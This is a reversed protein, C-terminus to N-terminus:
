LQGISVPRFPTADVGTWKGPHLAIRRVGLEYLLQFPQVFAQRMSVDLCVIGYESGAYRLETRGGVRQHMETLRRLMKWMVTGDFKPYRFFIEFNRTGSLIIFTTMIPLIGPVWKNADSLKSKGRWPDNGIIRGDANRELDIIPEHGGKYCLGCSISSCVDVQIFKSFRSCFHPDIHDTELYPTQWRLGIGYERAAGVFCLRLKAGPALWQACTEPDRVKVALQQVWTDEVINVQVWVILHNKASEPNDFLKRLDAYETVIRISTSDSMMDVVGASKFVQHTGFGADGQNGHNAYAFWSAIGIYAMTPHSALTMPPTRKRLDAQVKAITTGALWANPKATYVGKFQHLFLRPAPPASRKLFFGWGANVIPPPKGLSRLREVGVLLEETTTPTVDGRCLAPFAGSRILVRPTHTRLLATYLILIAAVAAIVGVAAWNSLAAWVMAVVICAIAAPIALIATSWITVFFLQYWM